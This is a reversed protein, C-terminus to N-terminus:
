LSRSKQAVILKATPGVWLFYVRNHADASFDQRVLITSPLTDGNATIFIEIYEFIGSKVAEISAYQEAYILEVKLRSYFSEM